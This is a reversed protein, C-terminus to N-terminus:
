RSLEISRVTDDHPLKLFTLELLNRPNLSPSRFERDMLAWLSDLSHAAGDAVDCSFVDVLDKVKGPSCTHLDRACIRLVQGSYFHVTGVVRQDSYLNDALAGGFEGASMRLQQLVAPYQSVYHAAVAEIQSRTSQGYVRKLFRREIAAPLWSNRRTNMTLYIAVNEIPDTLLSQAMLRESRNHSHESGDMEGLLADAEDCLVIVVYGQKALRTARRFARLLNRETQHIFSSGIHSSSVRVLAFGKKRVGRDAAARVADRGVREAASTKGTGTPGVLVVRVARDCAISRVDRSWERRLWPPLVLDSVSPGEMPPFELWDERKGDESKHIATAVGAESRVFVSEGDEDKKRKIEEALGRCAFVTFTREQAGDSVEIEALNDFKTEPWSAIVELMEAPLPPPPLHGSPGLFIKNIPDVLGLFPPDPIKTLVDPEDDKAANPVKGLVAFCEPVPTMRNLLTGFVLRQSQGNENVSFERSLIWGLTPKQERLSKLVQLLEDRQQQCILLRRMVAAQAADEGGAAQMIMQFAQRMLADDELSQPTKRLMEALPMLQKLVLADLTRQSTASRPPFRVPVSM